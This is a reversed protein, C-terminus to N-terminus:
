FKDHPFKERRDATRQLARNPRKVRTGDYIMKTVFTYVKIKAYRDSFLLQELQEPRYEPWLYNVFHVHSGGAWHAPTKVDDFTFYFLHWKAGNYFLHASRRKRVAFLNKIKRSVKPLEETKRQRFVDIDAETLEAEEPEYDEHARGHVYGILRSFLILRTLEDSRITLTACYNKLASKRDLAFLTALSEPVSPEFM